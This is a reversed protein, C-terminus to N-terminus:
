AAQRRQELQKQVFRQIYKAIGPAQARLIWHKGPLVRVEAQRHFAEAESLSPIELFPDGEGWIFLAPTPSPARAKGLRGPVLRFLQRYQEIGAFIHAPSQREPAEAELGGLSYIQNLAFPHLAKLALEPLAQLQFLFIYYSKLWQGPKDVRSFYQNLGLSNILVLGACRPGLYGALAEAYPGGMDHAVILVPRSGEPDVRRLLSLLDLCWASLGYRRAPVRAPAHTGHVFPAILAYKGQLAQMLPEWVRATDPFGHLMLLLPAEAPADLQELSYLPLANIEREQLSIATGAEASVPPPSM